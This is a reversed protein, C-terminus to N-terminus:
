INASLRWSYPAQVSRSTRTRRRCECVIAQKKEEGTEAKPLRIGSKGTRVIAELDELGFETDLSNIRVYIDVPYDISSLAESVLFRASDKETVAVSDELDFMVCDAGYIGADRVMGPNNGPVYLLTRLLNSM